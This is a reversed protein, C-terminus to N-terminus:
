RGYYKRFFHETAPTSNLHKKYIKRITEILHEAIRNSLKPKPTQKDFRIQALINRRTVETEFVEKFVPNLLVRAKRTYNPSYGDKRMKTLIKEIHEKAVKNIFLHGIVPKMHRNYIALGNKRYEISLLHSM